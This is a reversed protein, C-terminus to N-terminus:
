SELQQCMVAELVCNGVGVVYGEFDAVMDSAYSRSRWFLERRASSDEFTVAKLPTVM